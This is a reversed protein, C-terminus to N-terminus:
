QQLHRCMKGSAFQDSGKDALQLADRRMVRVHALHLSLRLGLAGKLNGCRAPMANQHHPRRTGSFGHQRLAEGADERLHRFGLCQLARGHLRQVAAEIHGLPLCAWITRWVM